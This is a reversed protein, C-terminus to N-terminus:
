NGQNPKNAKILGLNKHTVKMVAVIKKLLLNCEITDPDIVLDVVDGYRLVHSSYMNNLKRIEKRLNDDIGKPRFEKIVAKAVKELDHGIKKKIIRQYKDFDKFLLLSKLVIEVGQCLLHLVVYQYGGKQSLLVSAAVFNCGKHYMAEATRRKGYSSLKVEAVLSNM